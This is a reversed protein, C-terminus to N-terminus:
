SKIKITFTGFPKEKYHYGDYIGKLIYKIGFTKKKEEQDNEIGTDDISHFEDVWNPLSPNLKITLNTKRIGSKTEITMMYDKNPYNVNDRLKKVSLIKYNNDSVSYNKISKIFESELIYDSMDMAVEFKLSQSSGRRNSGIKADYLSLNRVYKKNFSGCLAKANIKIDIKKSKAIECIMKNTYKFKKQSLLDEKILKKMHKRSAVLIVYYPRSSWNADHEQDLYDWYKGGAFKSELRFAITVLDKDKITTALVIKIRNKLAVLADLANKYSPICDSIFIAGNKSSIHHEFIENFIEDFKTTNRVKQIKFKNFNTKILRSNFNKQMIQINGRLDAVRVSFKDNNQAKPIVNSYFLELTDYFPELSLNTILNFFQDKFESNQANFYGNMSPGVELFVNMNYKSTDILKIRSELIVKPNEADALEKLDKDFTNGEYIQKLGDEEEITIRGDKSFLKFKQEFGGPGPCSKVLLIILAILIGAIVFYKAKNNKKSKGM